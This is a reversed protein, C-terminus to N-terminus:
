FYIEPIFETELIKDSLMRLFIQKYNYQDMSSVEVWECEEHSIFSLAPEGNALKRSPDLFLGNQGALFLGKAGSVAEDDGLEDLLWDDATTNGEDSLEYGAEPGGADWTLSTATQAIERFSGPLGSDPEIKENKQYNFECEEFEVTGEEVKVVADCLRNLIENDEDTSCLGILLNKLKESDNM